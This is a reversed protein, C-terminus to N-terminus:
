AHLTRGADVAHRLARVAARPDAARAVAGSVAVGHAGTGLIEAVHEATVNGIAIVPLPHVARVIEALATLGLTPAPHEKTLTGFVPGVGLYDVPRGVWAGAEDLNNATGGLLAGEGLLRRAVEPALDHRGLHVGDADAEAAVDVRDNVLVRVGRPRVAALADRVAAVRQVTSSSGKDRVQVVDAGEEAAVKALGDGPHVLVHLRGVREAAPSAPRLRDWFPDTPGIGRGVALGHRIAETLFTKARGVAEELPHGHALFTAIAAGYTCGTGHTHRADLREAAFVRVGEGTVLLDEARPGPLHGGKVLVAAAGLARLAKGAAAAEELTRVPMGTLVEAEHTNPTLLDALPLLRARLAEVAHPDLLSDGSKAVMVPDCVLPATGRAALAAAVTCVVEATALMGTKVARVQLDELVAELQARVMEAAVPASARVGTTNQATLATIASAGYGGCAAIAKLDAQIGAGGSSDSGAVTLVTPRM